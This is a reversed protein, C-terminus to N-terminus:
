PGLYGKDVSEDILSRAFDWLEESGEEIHRNRAYVHEPSIGHEQWSKGQTLYNHLLPQVRDLAAAFKSEATSRSEFEDWLSRFERAQDEPLINFLRDAAKEERAKKDEHLKIDYIFSDGADIEVIDHILLMKVVKFVDIKENSYESLLVAMVSIHWSHEADNEKRSRDLLYTQRYVQKLKDMEAIFKIQRELRDM